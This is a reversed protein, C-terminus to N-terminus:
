KIKFCTRNTIAPVVKAAANAASPASGVWQKYLKAITGDKKLENIAKNFAAIHPDGPRFALGVPVLSGAVTPGVAYTPRKRLAYAYAVHDGVVADVRGESLALASDTTNAFYVQSFYGPHKKLFAQSLLDATGGHADYGVKLGKLDALSKISKLRDKSAIITIDDSYFPVTFQLAGNAGNLRPCSIFIVAAGIFDYKKGTLGLYIQAYPVSDFELNIGLKKGMAQVMQAEMGTPKGNKDVFAFPPFDLTAGVKLTEGSRASLASSAAVLTVGLLVAAVCAAWVWRRRPQLSTYRHKRVM